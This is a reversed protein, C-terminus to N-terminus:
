YVGTKKKLVTVNNQTKIWFNLLDALHNAEVDYVLFASPPHLSERLLYNSSRLIKAKLM